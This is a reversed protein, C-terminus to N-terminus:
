RGAGPLRSASSVSYQSIGCAHASRPSYHLSPERSRREYSNGPLRRVVKRMELKMLAVALTGADLGAREGHLQHLQLHLLDHPSQRAVAVLAASM